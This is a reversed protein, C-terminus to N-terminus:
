PYRQNIRKAPNGAYVSNVEVDQTIVARAGIISKDGISVNPGIFADACIWVDDGITIPPKILTMKGDRFDHSGACIHAYQSVTSATGIKIPGLAYLIVSDGIACHDGISLNWPITIKVTSHIHVNQGIKAGFSRLIFRRWGWLPRPSLRFFPLTTGWLIRGLLAKKSWKTSRRNESVDTM